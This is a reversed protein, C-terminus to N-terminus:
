RGDNSQEKWIMPFGDTNLMVTMGDESSGCYMVGTDRYVYIKLGEFSYVKDFERLSDRYIEDDIFIQMRPWDCDKAILDYIDMGVIIITLAIILVVICFFVHDKIKKLFSDKKKM